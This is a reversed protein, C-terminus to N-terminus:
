KVAIVVSVPAVEGANVTGAPAASAPKSGAAVPTETGDGSLRVLYPTGTQPVTKTDNRTTLVPINNRALQRAHSKPYIFERGITDGPYWWTRIAPPANSATEMMRVEAEEPPTPREAPITLFTGYVKTGDASLVQMVRGGTEPDAFRFMYKGPPLTKGPLTVPSNFTFYVRRDLPQLSASATMVLCLVAVAFLFHRITTNPM